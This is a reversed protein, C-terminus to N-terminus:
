QSGLKAEILQKLEMVENKQEDTLDKTLLAKVSMLADDYLGEDM